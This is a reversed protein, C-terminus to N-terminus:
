LQYFAGDRRAGFANFILARYASQVRVVSGIVPAHRYPARTL